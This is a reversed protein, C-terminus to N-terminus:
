AIAPEPLVTATLVVSIKVPNPTPTVSPSGTKLDM